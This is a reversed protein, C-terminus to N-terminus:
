TYDMGKAHKSIIWSFQFIASTFAHFHQCHNDIHPNPFPTLFFIFFVKQWM